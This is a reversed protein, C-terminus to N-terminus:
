KAKIERGAGVGIGGRGKFTSPDGAVGLCGAPASVPASPAM